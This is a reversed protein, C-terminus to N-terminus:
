TTGVTTGRPPAPLFVLNVADDREYLLQYTSQIYRSFLHRPYLSPLYYVQSDDLDPYDFMWETFSSGQDSTTTTFWVRALIISDRNVAQVPPIRAPSNELFDHAYGNLWKLASDDHREVLDYVAELLEFMAEATESWTFAFDLDDSGQDSRTPVTAFDQQLQRDFYHHVNKASSGAARVQSLVNALFASYIDDNM